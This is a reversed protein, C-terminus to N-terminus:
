SEYLIASRVCCRCVKGKTKLPFRNGLLLEECKRFRVWGIRVRATIVAECGGSANLRDGLYCFGNVTEVEDCLKKISNVTGKIIERWRSCVFLTALSATVREIKACRGHVWNGCKTCLVLNAMVRRGCVGCLDIKSKFQGRELGSVMVKTKRTNVKLGKSELANKWNWFREKLDEMTESILVLGDAYLLENVLDRKTNETIVDVIIACLLPSLVSGQRVGVNVKFEESYSSEVKVRTKAGLEYSGPGNSRIFGEKEHGM